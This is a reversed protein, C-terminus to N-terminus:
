GGLCASSWPMPRFEWQKRAAAVQSASPRGPFVTLDIGNLITASKAGNGVIREQLATKHDESSVFM